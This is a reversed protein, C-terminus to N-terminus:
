VPSLPIKRKQKKLGAAKQEHWELGASKLSSM